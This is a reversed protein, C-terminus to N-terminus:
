RVQAVMKLHGPGTPRVWLLEEELDHPEGLGLFESEVDLHEVRRWFALLCYPGQQLTIRGRIYLVVDGFQTHFAHAAEQITVVRDPLRLIVVEEM